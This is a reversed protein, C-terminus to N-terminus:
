DGSRRNIALTFYILIMTGLSSVTAFFLVIKRPNIPALRHFRKYRADGLETLAPATTTCSSPISSKNQVLPLKLQEQQSPVVKVVLKKSGDETEYEEGGRREMRNSGKRSLARMVKPSGSCCKDSAHALGEIDLVLSGSKDMTNVQSQLLAEEM